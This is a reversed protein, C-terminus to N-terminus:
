ILLATKNLMHEATKSTALKSHWLTAIMIIIIDSLKFWFLILGILESKNISQTLLSVASVVIIENVSGKSAMTKGTCVPGELCRCACSITPTTIPIPDM